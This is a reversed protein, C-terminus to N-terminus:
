GATGKNEFIFKCFPLTNEGKLNVYIIRLQFNSVETCTEKGNLHLFLFYTIVDFIYKRTERTQREQQKM